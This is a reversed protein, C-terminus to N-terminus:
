ATAAAYNSVAARLKDHAALEFRNITRPTVGRLEGAKSLAEGRTEGQGSAAMLEVLLAVEGEDVVGVGRAWQLLDVVDSVPDELDAFLERDPLDFVQDFRESMPTAEVSRRPKAQRVLRQQTRKILFSAARRGPQPEAAKIVEWAASIVDSPSCLDRLDLAVRILGDELLVLLAVGADDDDGGRRCALATLATVIQHSREDRRSWAAVAEALDACWALRDDQETWEAWRDSHALQRYGSRLVQLGPDERLDSRTSHDIGTQATM